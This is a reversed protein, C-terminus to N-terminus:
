QPIPETFSWKDPVADPTSGINICGIKKGFAAIPAKANVNKVPASWLYYRRSANLGEPFVIAEQDGSVSYWTLKPSMFIRGYNTPVM